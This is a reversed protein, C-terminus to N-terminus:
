SKRPDRVFRVDREDLRFETAKWFGMAWSHDKLVIASIRKAGWEGLIKEAEAVLARGLGQRRFRPHVALRYINGRWGDFAAIITGAIANGDVALIFAANDRGAMRRIDEVTDTVGPAADAAKWLELISAADESTARRFQVM